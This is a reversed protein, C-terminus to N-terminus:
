DTARYVKDGRRVRDPVKIGVSDGPAAEDVYAHDIQMEKVSIEIDTTHGLIRITDGKKVEGTLDVGAVMPRAFYGSVVGIEVEGMKNFRREV